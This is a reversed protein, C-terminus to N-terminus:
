LRGDVEWAVLLIIFHSLCLGAAILALVLPAVDFPFPIFFLSTGFLVALIFSGIAAKLTRKNKAKM